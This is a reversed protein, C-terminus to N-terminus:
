VLYYDGGTELGTIRDDLSDKATLFLVPTKSGTARLRRLMELGDMKPRMIDLIIVDYETSLAYDLAEQGDFCSDTSYGEDEMAESIIANLHKEDEVVLIRM